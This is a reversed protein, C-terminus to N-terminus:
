HIAGPWDLVAGRIAPARECREVYAAVHPRLGDRWFADAGLNKMRLLEVAFFLM